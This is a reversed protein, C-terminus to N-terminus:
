GFRKAAMATAVRLPSLKSSVRVMRADDRKKPEIVAAVVKAKKCAQEAAPSGMSIWPALPLVLPGVEVPPTLLLVPPLLTPIPPAVPMVLVVPPWTDAAPPSTLEGTVPPVLPVLPALGAAHGDLKGVFPFLQEGLPPPVLAAPAALLRVQRNPVWLQRHPVRRIHVQSSVLEPPL